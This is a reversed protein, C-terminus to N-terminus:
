PAGPARPHVGGGGGKGASGAVVVKREGAGKARVVGNWGLTGKERSEM